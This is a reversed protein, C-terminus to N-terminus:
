LEPLLQLLLVKQSYVSKRDVYFFMSRWVKGTNAVKALGWPAKTHDQLQTGNGLGPVQFTKLLGPCPRGQTFWQRYFDDWEGVFFSVYEMQERLHQEVSVWLWDRIWIHLHLNAQPVEKHVAHFSVCSMVPQHQAWAYNSDGENPWCKIYLIDQKRFLCSSKLFEFQQSCCCGMEKNLNCKCKGCVMSSHVHIKSTIMEVLPLNTNVNM